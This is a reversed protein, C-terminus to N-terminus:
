MTDNNIRLPEKSNYQNLTGLHLLREEEIKERLKLVISATNYNRYSEKFGNNILISVMEELDVIVNNSIGSFTNKNFFWYYYLIYTVRNIQENLDGGGDLLYNRIISSKLHKNNYSPLSRIVDGKMKFILPMRLISEDKIYLARFQNSISLKCIDLITKYKKEDQFSPDLLKKHQSSIEVKSAIEKAFYGRISKKNIFIDDLSINWISLKSNYRMYYADEKLNNTDLYM